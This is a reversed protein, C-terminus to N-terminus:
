FDQLIPTSISTELFLPVRLDDMKIPNEMTFWGNQPVGIKPFMWIAFHSNIYSIDGDNVLFEVQRLQDLQLESGDVWRFPIGKGGIKFWDM